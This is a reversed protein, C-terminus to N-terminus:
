RTASPSWRITKRGGSYLNRYKSGCKRRQCATLLYSANTLNTTRRKTRLGGSLGLGPRGTRQCRRIKSARSFAPFSLLPPLAGSRGGEGRCDFDRRSQERRPGPVAEAMEAGRGVAVTAKAEYAAVRRARGVMGRGTAVADGFFSGCPNKTVRGGVKPKERGKIGFPRGGDAAAPTGIEPPDSGIGRGAAPSTMVRGGANGVGRGAIYRVRSEDARVRTHVVKSVLVSKGDRRKRVILLTGGRRARYLGDFSM